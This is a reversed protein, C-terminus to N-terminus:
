AVWGITDAADMTTNVWEAAGVAADLCRYAEDATVDIWLSGVSYGSASDDTDLPETTADLKNVGSQLGILTRFTAAQSLLLDELAISM